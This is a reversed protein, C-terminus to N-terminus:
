VPNPSDQFNHGSILAEATAINMFSQSGNYLTGSGRLWGDGCLKDNGISKSACWISCITCRFYAINMKSLIPHGTSTDGLRIDMECFSWGVLPAVHCVILTFLYQM